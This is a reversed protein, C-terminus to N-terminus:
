MADRPFIWTPRGQGGSHQPTIATESLLPTIIGNRMNYVGSDRLPDVALGAPCYDCMFHICDEQIGTCGGAPFSKSCHKGVFLAQGGLKSVFRWQGPKTSWDAEFVEFAVTRDGQSPGHSLACDWQVMRIVMLLRGCCEVLYSMQMYLKGHPLPQPLALRKTPRTICKVSSITPESDLGYTIEFISLECRLDVGYLKGNFFAIDSLHNFRGLNSEIALYTGISQQFIRITRGSGLILAAVLSGPSSEMPSPVALKTFYSNYSSSANFWKIDLKPLNRTAKSFPNMVSCGGDHHVFFLWDNASGCCRADDSGLMRIIKGDPITLFTGDLLTLWPLPPPLLQLLANSCWPRCVARLRVRDALSPLRMLVLGLLEPQLDPWSSSQAEMM